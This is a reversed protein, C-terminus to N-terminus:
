LSEKGAGYVTTILVLLEKIFKKKNCVAQCVSAICLLLISAMGGIFPINFISKVFHDWGRCTIVPAIMVACNYTEPFYIKQTYCFFWLVVVMEKNNVLKFPM